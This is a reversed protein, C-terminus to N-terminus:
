EECGQGGGVAERHTQHRNVGEQSGTGCSELYQVNQVAFSTYLYKAAKYPIIPTM